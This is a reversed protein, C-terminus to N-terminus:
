PVASVGTDSSSPRPRSTRPGGSWLRAASDSLTHAHMTKSHNGTDSSSSPPPRCVSLSQRFRWSNFWDIRSLAARKPRCTLSSLLPQSSTPAALRAAQGGVMWPIGGFEDLANDSSDEVEHDDTTTPDGGSGCLVGAHRGSAVDCVFRAFSVGTKATISRHLSLCM